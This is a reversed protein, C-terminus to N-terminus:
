DKKRIARQQKPSMKRSKVTKPENQEVALPPTIRTKLYELWANDKNIKDIDDRVRLLLEYREADTLIPKPESVAEPVILATSCMLILFIILTRM